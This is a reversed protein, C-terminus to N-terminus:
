VSRQALLDVPERRMVSRAFLLAPLTLLPVALLIAGAPAALTMALPDSPLIALEATWGGFFAELGLLAGTALAAGFAGGLFALALAEGLLLMTLTAGGLGSARRLGWVPRREHFSAAATSFIGVSTLALVIAVGAALLAELGTVLGGFRELSEDSRSARLGLEAIRGLVAPADEASEVDVHLMGYPTANEGGFEANWERMVELPIVLGTLNPSTTLGVIRARIRRSGGPAPAGIYSQGPILDFERGIAANRGLKPLNSGEAIGLNYMDLFYASVAVPVVGDPFATEFAAGNDLDAAIMERPVGFIVVDTTFELDLRGISIEALVPFSATMQPLVRVVEPMARVAGVAADDIGKTEMRFFAVDMEAPRVVIREEPFLRELHPRLDFRLWALGHLSLGCIGCSVATCCVLLLARRPHALLERWVLWAYARLTM